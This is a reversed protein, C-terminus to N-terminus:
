NGFDPINHHPDCINHHPDCIQPIPYIIFTPSSDEYNSLCDMDKIIPSQDLHDELKKM